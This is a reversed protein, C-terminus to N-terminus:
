NSDKVAIVKSWELLLINMKYIFLYLPEDISSKGYAQNLQFRISKHLISSGFVKKPM